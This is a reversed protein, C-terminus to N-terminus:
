DDVVGPQGARATDSGLDGSAVPAYSIREPHVYLVVCGPINRSMQQRALSGAMESDSTSVRLYCKKPTMNKNELYSVEVRWPVYPMACVDSSPTTFYDDPLGTRRGEDTWLPNDKWWGLKEIAEAATRAVMGRHALRWGHGINSPRTYIDYKM